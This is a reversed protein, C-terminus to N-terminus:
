QDDNVILYSFTKFCVCMALEGEKPALCHHKRIASKILILFHRNSNPNWRSQTKIMRM